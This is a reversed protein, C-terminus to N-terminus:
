ECLIPDDIVPYLHKPKFNYHWWESRISSFGYKEMIKKLFIRNQLVTDPFNLYTHNSRFSLDDFGTGMDLERGKSDVISLDVALGRNHISGGVPNAVYGKVPFRKFMLAQVHYPRYCDFFKLGLAQKQLDQQIKQLVKAVKYRVFCKNCPYLKTKTFNQKTAYPMEVKVAPLFEKLNVLADDPFDMYVFPLLESFFLINDKLRAKLALQKRNIFKLNIDQNFANYTGTLNLSVGTSDIKTCNWDGFYFIEKDLKNKLSSMLYLVFTNNDYFRISYQVKEPINKRYYVGTSLFGNYSFYQNIFKKNKTQNTKFTRKKYHHFVVPEDGTELIISIRYNTSQKNLKIILDDRWAHVLKENESKLFVIRLNYTKKYLKIYKGNTYKGTYIGNLYLKFKQEGPRIDKFSIKLSKAKLAKNVSFNFIEGSILKGTNKFVIGQSEHNKYPIIQYNSALKTFTLDNLLFIDPHKAQKKSCSFLLLGILLIFYRKPM